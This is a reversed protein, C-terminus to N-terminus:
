NWPPTALEDLRELTYEPVPEPREPGDGGRPLWASRLGAARAGAVDVSLSSGVHVARDATAGLAKLAVAFPEAAPKAPTEYGGCVVTEVYGDLGAAELKARQLEPAGNTVVALRYEDTLAELADEAGPVPEVTGRERIAAYEDAVAWGTERDDGAEVALEGFRRRRLDTVSASAENGLHGDAGSELHTGYRDRYDSVDWLKEVGAREFATELADLASADPRPATCLTGDLEFCITEVDGDGAREDSMSRPGVYGREVRFRSAEVRMSAAEGDPLETRPHSEFRRPCSDFRSARSAM